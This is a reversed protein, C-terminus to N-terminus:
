LDAEALEKEEKTKQIEALKKEAAHLPLHRTSGHIECHRWDGDLSYQLTSFATRCRTCVWEEVEILNNLKDCEAQALIQTKYLRAIDHLTGSDIGTERCMYTEKTEDGDIEFRIQGVTLPNQEVKWVMGSKQALLGKGDCQPCKLSAGDKLKVFGADCSPCSIFVSKRTSFIHWAKDGLNFHSRIEM